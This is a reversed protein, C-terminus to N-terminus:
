VYKLTFTSSFIAINLAAGAANCYVADGLPINMKEAFPKHLNCYETQLM